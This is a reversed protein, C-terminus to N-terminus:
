AAKIGYLTFTSGTVFNADLYLTISTIAATSRWLGAFAVTAAVGSVNARLLTTKYTTSNSYNMINIIQHSQTANIGAGIIASYNAHRGSGTTGDGFIYTDSYLVSTDGNFRYYMTDSSVATNSIILVLDTYTSPISSFTYSAANATLTNTAIPTYTIAM